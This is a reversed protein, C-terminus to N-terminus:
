KAGIKTQEMVHQWRVNEQAVYAAMERPPKPMPNIGRSQMSAVVDPDRLAQALVDGLREVIEPSTATPAFLGFWTNVVFDQVGLEIFTPVEPLLPSRTASTIAIPIVRKAHVQPLTTPTPDM